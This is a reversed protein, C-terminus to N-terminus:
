NKAETQEPELQAENVRYRAVALRRPKGSQSLGLEQTERTQPGQPWGGLKANQKAARAKAKTAISGLAAAAQEPSLEFEHQCNPCSIRM